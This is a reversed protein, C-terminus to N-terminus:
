KQYTGVNSLYRTTYPTLSSYNPPSLDRSVFAGWMKFPGSNNKLSGDVTRQHFAYVVVNQSIKPRVARMETKMSTNALSSGAEGLKFPVRTNQATTYILLENREHCYANARGQDGKEEPAARTASPIFEGTTNQLSSSTAALSCLRLLPKTSWTVRSM